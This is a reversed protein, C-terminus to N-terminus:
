RARIPGTASIANSRAPSKSAKEPEKAAAAEKKPAAEKTPAKEAAGTTDSKPGQKTETSAAEPKAAGEKPAAEGSKRAYDTLVEAFVISLPENQLPTMFRRALDKDIKSAGAPEENTMVSLFSYFIKQTDASVTLEIPKTANSDPNDPAPTEPMWLNVLPMNLSSGLSYNGWGVNQGKADVLQLTVRVSASEFYNSDKEVSLVVGRAPRLERIRRDIDEIMEPNANGGAQQVRISARYNTEQEVVFRDFVRSASAGLPLQMATPYSSYVLRDGHRMAAIRHLDIDKLLFLIAISGPERLQAEKWFAESARFDNRGRYFNEQKTMQDFREQETLPKPLKACAEDVEKRIAQYITEIDKKEQAAVKTESRSLYLKGGVDKWEALCMHAIQEMVKEVPQDKARIFIVTDALNTSTALKQGTQASLADVISSVRGVPPEFTIPSQRIVTSALLSLAVIM